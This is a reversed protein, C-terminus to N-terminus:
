KVLITTRVAFGNTYNLDIQLIKNKKMTKLPLMLHNYAKLFRELREQIKNQGLKLKIRNNLLIYWNKRNDYGFEKIKFNTVQILPALKNYQKLINNMEALQGVFKPLYLHKNINLKLLKAEDDVLMDNNWRAVVQYEELKIHLTGPFKKYIQVRKVWPLSLLTSHLKELEVSFFNGQISQTILKKLNHTQTHVIQSDIFVNKIPLIRPDFIWNVSSSILALLLIIFIIWKFWFKHYLM